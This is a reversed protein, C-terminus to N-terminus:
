GGDTSLDTQDETKAHDAREESRFYLYLLVFFLGSMLHWVSHGQCVADPDSFRGEIDLMRIYAAAALTAIAAICYRLQLHKRKQLFSAAVFLVLILWIPQTVRSFSYDWKYIFFYLSLMFICSIILPWTSLRQVRGPFKTCPIWSGIAIGSLCFMMAYMAGVDCQQGLRTLSAHFLGSGFGLYISSFGIAATMFPTSAVYGREIPVPNRYDHFAIAIASFGFFIYALNSWTNMRTRFVDKPYIREAYQPTKFESAPEWGNWINADRYTLMVVLLLLAILLTGGISLIHVWCPLHELKLRYMGTRM